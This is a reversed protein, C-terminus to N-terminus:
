QTENPQYSVKMLIKNFWCCNPPIGVLTKIQKQKKRTRKQLPQPPPPALKLVTFVLVEFGDSDRLTSLGKDKFISRLYEGLSAHM